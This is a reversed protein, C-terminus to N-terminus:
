SRPTAGHVTQEILDHGLDFKIGDPNHLNSNRYWAQDAEPHPGVVGVRGSGYPAVLAAPAGTDYTALVTVPKGATITFRPGDQFYMHRAAGGWTVPIVTDNTDPVSAGASGVYEAADGPLLGFGPTSGAIYAGLCFGLYHGGGRVWTRIDDAYKRMQRWGSNVTGGGPQAYVVAGALTAPTIKVNEDPGCFVTRFSTPSSELLAAVSESCGACSARGRYVLAVPRTDPKPAPQACGGLTALVGLSGAGILLERRGLRSAGCDRCRGRSGPASATM